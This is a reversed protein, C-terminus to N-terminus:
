AHARGEDMVQYKKALRAIEERLGGLQEYRVGTMKAARINAFKEPTLNDTLLGQGLVSNPSPFWPMVHCLLDPPPSPLLPCPSTPPRHTHTPPPFHPSDCTPLSADM